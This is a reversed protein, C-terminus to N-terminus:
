GKRFNFWSTEDDYYVEFWMGEKLEGEAATVPAEGYSVLIKDIRGKTDFKELAQYMEEFTGSELVIKQIGFIFEAPDEYNNEKVYGAFPDDDGDTAAGTYESDVTDTKENSEDPSEDTVPEASKNTKDTPESTFSEEVPQTKEDDSQVSESSETNESTNRPPKSVITKDNEVSEQCGSISLLLLAAILISIIKRQM